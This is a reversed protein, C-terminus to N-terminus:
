RRAGVAATDVVRCIFPWVESCPVGLLKMQNKADLTEYVRMITRAMPATFQVGDIRQVIGVERSLTLRLLGQAGLPRQGYRNTSM